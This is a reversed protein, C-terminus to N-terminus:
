PFSMSHLEQGRAMHLYQLRDGAPARVLCDSARYEDFLSYQFPFNAIDEVAQAGIIYSVGRGLGMLLAKDPAFGFTEEVHAGAKNVKPHRSKNTDGM